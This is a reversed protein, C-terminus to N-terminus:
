FRFQLGNRLSWFSPPIGEPPFADYTLNFIITMSLYKNIRTRLTTAHSMRYDKWYTIDPQYYTITNMGFNKSFQMDFSLYMSLRLHRNLTNDTLDEFEAMPTLGLTFNVSDQRIANIRIGGGYLSRLRIRQIKNFQMQKFAELVFVSSDDLAYNYRMHEFGDNVFDSEGAKVFNIESHIFFLHKKQTYSVRFTNGLQWIQQTNRTFAFNLNNMGTWGQERDQLRLNEINVIQSRGSGLGLFVIIICFVVPRMLSNWFYVAVPIM